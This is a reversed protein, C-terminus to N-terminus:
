KRVIYASRLKSRLKYCCELLNYKACKCRKAVSKACFLSRGMMPSWCLNHNRWQILENSCYFIELSWLFFFFLEYTGTEQASIEKIINGGSGDGGRNGHGVDMIWREDCFLINKDETQKEMRWNGKAMTERWRMIIWPIARNLVTIRISNFWHSSFRYLYFSAIKTWLHCRIFSFYMFLWFYNLSFFSSSQIKTNQASMKTMMPGM